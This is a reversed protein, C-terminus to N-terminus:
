GDEGDLERLASARDIIGQWRESARAGLLMAIEMQASIVLAALTRETPLVPRAGNLKRNLASQAIGMFEAQGAQTTGLMRCVEKFLPSKKLKENKKVACSRTKTPMIVM